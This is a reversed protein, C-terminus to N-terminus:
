QIWTSNLRNFEKLVCNSSRRFIYAAINDLEKEDKIGTNNKINTKLIENIKAQGEIQENEPLGIFFKLAKSLKYVEENLYKQHRNM